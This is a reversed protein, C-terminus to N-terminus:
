TAGRIREAFQKRFVLYGIGSLVALTSILLWAVGPNGAFNDLLMGGFLPGLSWGSAVVFGYIGMYRGMRNEPAMQSTLTLSPPSMGMEGMSIIVITVMFFAFGSSMGVLGYGIAYVFAGFALQSALSYRSFLRTIPIQLFAVMLGNVTYLMGLEISTIGRIEVSYVSFPVILQAVVLFLLFSLLCHKALMPDDKVAVIDALKFHDLTNPKRDVRMFQWFVLGSVLTVVASILFLLGYSTAALFGGIAPGAAWGLNGASRTLAYGDLRKEKPLIDSVMANAVPHFLAGFITAVLMAVSVAWFGQDYHITIALGAFALGRFMQTWVLLTKRQMRDSIEGGVLQFGSRVIAMVGFFVGIQTMSMGFHSHFYISIFPMSAAFGLAGVFWGFSLAWLNHNFQGIFGRIRAIMIRPIYM